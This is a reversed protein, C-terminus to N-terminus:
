EFQTYNSPTFNVIGLVFRKKYIKILMLSMMDNGNAKLITMVIILLLFSSSSSSSYLYSFDSHKTSIKEGETWNSKSKSKSVIVM